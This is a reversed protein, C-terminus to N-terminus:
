EEEMFTLLFSLNKKKQVKVKSPVSHINIQIFTEREMHYSSLFRDYNPSNHPIHSVSNIFITATISLFFRSWLSCYERERYRIGDNGCAM